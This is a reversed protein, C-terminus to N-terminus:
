NKKQIRTEYSVYEGSVSFDGEKVSSIFHEVGLIPSRRKSAYFELLADENGSLVFDHFDRRSGYGSLLEGWHLGGQHGEPGSTIIIAVGLIIRLIM